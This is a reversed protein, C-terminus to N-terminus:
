REAREDPPVARARFPARRARRAPISARPASRRPHAGADHEPRPAAGEAVGARRNAGGPDNAAGAERGDGRRAGRAGSRGGARRRDGAATTAPAAGPPSAPAPAPAPARARSDSRAADGSAGGRPPGRGDGGRDEDEVDRVFFGARARDGLGEDEGGAAEGDADPSGPAGRRPGAAAPLSRLGEIFLGAAVAANDDTRAAFRDARFRARRACCAPPPGCECEREDEWDDGRPPAM